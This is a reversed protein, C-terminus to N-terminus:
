LFLQLAMESWLEMKYNKLADTNVWHMDKLESQPSPKHETKLEFVFGTHVRGVKTLEENNIGKFDLKINETQIYLEESLERKAASLVTHSLKEVRSFDVPNIHGGIGISFLGHLRKETGARRYIALSNDVSNRLVIYPIIQKMTEDTEASSRPHWKIFQSLMDIASVPVPLSIKDKLWGSPLNNRNIVLVKENNM